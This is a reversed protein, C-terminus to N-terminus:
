TRFIKAFVMSLAFYVAINGEAGDQAEEVSCNIKKHRGCDAYMWSSTSPAHPIVGLLQSTDCDMSPTMSPAAWPYYRLYSGLCDALQFHQLSCKLQLEMYQQKPTGQQYKRTQWLTASVIVVFRGPGGQCFLWNDQIYWKINCVNNRMIYMM